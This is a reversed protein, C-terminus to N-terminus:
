LWRKSKALFLCAFLFLQWALLLALIKAMLIAENKQFDANIEARVQELDDPTACKGLDSVKTQLKTIESLIKANDATQQITSANGTYDVPQNPPSSDVTASFAFPILLLFLIFLIKKIKRV